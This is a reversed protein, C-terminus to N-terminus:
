INPEIKFNDKGIRWLFHKMKELSGIAWVAEYDNNIEVLRYLM